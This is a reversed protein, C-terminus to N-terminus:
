AITPATKFIFVNSYIKNTISKFHFVKRKEENDFPQNSTFGFNKWKM